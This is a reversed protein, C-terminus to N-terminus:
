RALVLVFKPADKQRLESAAAFGAAPWSGAVSPIPRVPAARKRAFRSIITAEAACEPSEVSRPPEEERDDGDDEGDDRDGDDECEGGDEGGGYM